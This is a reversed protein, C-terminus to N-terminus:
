GLPQSPENLRYHRHDPDPRCPTNGGGWTDVGMNLKVHKPTGPRAPVGITLTVTSWARGSAGAAPAQHQVPMTSQRSVPNGVELRVCYRAQQLRVVADPANMGVVDPITSHKPPMTETAAKKAGTGCGSFVLAVATAALILTPPRAM